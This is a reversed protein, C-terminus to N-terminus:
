LLNTSSVVQYTVGPIGTWQFSINTGSRSASVPPMITTVILFDQGPVNTQVNSFTRTGPVFMFGPLSPSTISGSEATSLASRIPEM